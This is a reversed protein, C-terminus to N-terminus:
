CKWKRLAKNIRSDPDNATKSSTLKKKMGGMRACFSKKRSGGEPQPAKLEGGTERKYSARGLANLGGSPSKGESRQWAPTTSGGEKYGVLGGSAKEEEDLSVGAGAGAIGYMPKNARIYGKLIEEQPEGTIMNTRALMENIERIMPKGPYDKAGAWAIDQFNAPEVGARRAEKALAQEYIGYANPPPAMMKPDWLQSMQEDLTSRDRYGLFNASFNHRKPNTVPILGLDQLKKAQEMNGSVFRGGIPFPLDAATTPIEKGLGKQYNTFAAMMLNSNPDAGGTTAAMADAFRARFQKPGEIPGLERIFENELQGMAYWDKALPRDKAVDFAGRLRLLSEPQNALQEYKAITDAKKPVIDTLTTGALQYRSPDAYFRKEIDFFPEYRGLDIEKQALKRAKQVDIAEPSLQKQLFQKGTKADTAMVPPIVDPYVESMKFKDFKLKKLADGVAKGKALNVLGGTAMAQPQPQPQAAPQSKSKLYDIYANLAGAGMGIATGGIRTVPHPILSAASGAAGIGGLLSGLYDGEQFRNYADAGQIGAGAGAASKLLLPMKGATAQAIRGPVSSAKQAAMQNAARMQAFRAADAEKAAIQEMAAPGGLAGGTIKSTVKGKGLPGEQKKFEEVVERVTEGTGAGYGTKAAYKQGPAGAMSPAAGPTVTPGGKPGYATELVKGAVPGAIAGVAGAAVPNRMMSEDGSGLMAQNQLERIHDAIQQADEKNGAADAQKLADYARQLQPDM